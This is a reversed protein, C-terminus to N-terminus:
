HLNATNQPTLTCGPKVCGWVGSLVLRGFLREQRLGGASEVAARASAGDLRVYSLRRDIENVVVEKEDRLTCSGSTLSRMWFM